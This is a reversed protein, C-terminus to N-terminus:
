IVSNANLVAAAHKNENLVNSVMWLGLELNPALFASDDVNWQLYGTFRWTSYKDTNLRAKYVFDWLVVHTLNEISNFDNEKFLFVEM